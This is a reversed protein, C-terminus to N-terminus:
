RVITVKETRAFGPGRMRVFYIGSAVRGGGADDGVWGIRYRGPNLRGDLVTRVRRGTVDFVEVVFPGESGASVGFSLTVAGRSPSPAPPDMFTEAPAHGSLVLASAIADPGRPEAVGQQTGAYARGVGPASEQRCYATTSDSKYRPDYLVHTHNPKLKPRLKQFEEFTTDLLNETQTSTVYTYWYNNQADIELGQSYTKPDSSLVFEVLADEAMLGNNGRTTLPTAMGLETNARNDTRVVDFGSTSKVELWNKSFRLTGGATTSDRAIDVARLNDLVTNCDVQVDASERLYLGAVNLKEVYNNAAYVRRQSGGCLYDFYVGAHNGVNPGTGPGLIWNGVFVLSDSEVAPIGCFSPGFYAHVPYSTSGQIQLGSLDSKNDLIRMEDAGDLLLGTRGLSADLGSGREITNSEVVGGQGVAGNVWLGTEAFHHIRSHRLAWLSDPYFVFLPNEAHSIDAYEIAGGKAYGQDITIGGWDEASGTETEPRFYVTDSSAGQAFMKGGVILDDKGTVGIDSDQGTRMGNRAVVHTGGELDWITQTERWLTVCSDPHPAWCSDYKVAYPVIVDTSDLLIHRDGVIEDFSLGSLSPAAQNEIALGVEGYKFETDKIESLGGEVGTYGYGIRTAVLNDFRLGYHDGAQPGPQQDDLYHDFVPDRSSSFVAGNAEVLGLVAMEVLTTDKGTALRDGSAESYIRANDTLTLKKGRQVVVDGSLQVRGDLTMDTRISDAGTPPASGDFRITVYMSDKGPNAWQINYISIGSYVDQPLV